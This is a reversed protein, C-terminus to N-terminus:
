NLTPSFVFEPLFEYTMMMKYICVVSSWDLSPAANYKSIIDTNM